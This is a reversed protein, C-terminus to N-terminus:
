GSDKARIEDEAATFTALTPCPLTIRKAWFGFKRAVHYPVLLNNKFARSKPPINHHDFRLKWGIKESDLIVSEYYGDGTWRCEGIVEHGDTRLKETLENVKTESGVLMAFHILGAAETYVDNESVLVGTKQMLELSTEDEFKLFYSEFQKKENQYKENSIVGFYTEYFLRIKEIDSCYIAIHLM